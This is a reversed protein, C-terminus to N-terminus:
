LIGAPDDGGSAGASGLGRLVQQRLQEVVQERTLGTERMQKKIGTDYEGLALKSEFETTRNAKTDESLTNGALGKDPAGVLQRKGKRTGTTKPVKFAGKGSQVAEETEATIPTANGTEKDVLWKTGDAETLEVKGARKEQERRAARDKRSEGSTFTQEDKRNEDERTDKTVDDERDLRRKEREDELKETRTRASKTDEREEGRLKEVMAARVAAQSQAIAGRRESTELMASGAAAGGSMGQGVNKAHRFLVEAVHSLKEGKGIVEEPPVIQGSKVMEDYRNEINVGTDEVQKIVKKQNEEPMEDWLDRPGKGPQARQM